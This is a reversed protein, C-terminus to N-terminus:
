GITITKQSAAINRPIRIELIGNQLKAELRDAQAGQPLPVVRRFPGVFGEVWRLQLDNGAPSSPLHREGSVELWGQTLSLTVADRSVGPLDVCFVVEKTSELVSICPTWTRPVAMGRGSSLAGLLRDLQEEVHQQPDKEPPIPAYPAEGTPPAERGTVSQYLQEIKGITSDVQELTTM